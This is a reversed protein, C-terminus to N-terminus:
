ISVFKAKQASNLSIKGCIHSLDYSEQEEEAQNSKGVTLVARRGRRFFRQSLGRGMGLYAATVDYAGRVM